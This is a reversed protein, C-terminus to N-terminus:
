WRVTVGAAMGHDRAGTRWRGDARLYADVGQGKWTVGVSADVGTRGGPAGTIALGTGGFTVPLVRDAGAVVHVVRAGLRLGLVGGAQAWDRRAEVGAFVRTRGASHAAAVLAGTAFGDRRVRVHDVGVSPTVAWDGARLHWGTEAMAGFVRLDYRAAGALTQTDAEGLGYVLAGSAFWDGSRYGLGVGAQTLSVKGTEGVSRLALDTRGTDLGFGLTVGSPFVWTLGGAVGRGDRREGPRTGDADTRGGTAYGEVWGFRAVGPGGMGSLTAAPLAFGRPGAGEDGMRRLMRQGLDYGGSQVAAHISGLAQVVGRVQWHEFIEWTETGTITELITLHTNLYALNATTGFPVAALAGSNECRTPPAGNNGTSAAECLGLDTTLITTIAGPTGPVFSNGGEITGPGVVLNFTFSLVPEGVVERQTEVTTQVVSERRELLVPALVMFGPGGTATVAVGADSVLAQVEPAVFPLDRTEDLVTAGGIEGTIRTRFVDSRVSADVRTVTETRTSAEIETINFCQRLAGVGGFNCTRRELEVGLSSRRVYQVRERLALFEDQVRAACGEEGPACILSRAFELGIESQSAGFYELTCVDNLSAGPPPPPFRNPEISDCDHAVIETQAAGEGALGLCLAGVLAWVVHRM